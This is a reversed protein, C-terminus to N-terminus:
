RRPKSALKRLLLELQCILVRRRAAISVGLRDEGAALSLALSAVVLSKGVKPEGGVFLIGQPPLLGTEVLGPPAASPQQGLLQALSLVPPSASKTSAADNV